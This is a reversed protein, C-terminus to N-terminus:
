SLKQKHHLPLIWSWEKTYLYYTTGFINKLFQGEGKFSPGESKKNNNNNNNNNSVFIETHLGPQGPVSETSRGAEAKQTSPNFAHAVM